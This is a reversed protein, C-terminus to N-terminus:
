MNELSVTFLPDVMKNPLLSDMNITQSEAVILRWFYTETVILRNITGLKLFCVNPCLFLYNM